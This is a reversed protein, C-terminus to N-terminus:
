RVCLSFSGTAALSNTPVTAWSPTQIGLLSCRLFSLCRLLSFLSLRVSLSSLLPDLIFCLARHSFRSLQHEKESEKEEYTYVEYM